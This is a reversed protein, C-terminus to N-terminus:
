GRGSVLEDTSLDAPRSDVHTRALSSMSLAQDLRLDVNFEPTDIRLKKEKACRSLGNRASFINDRYGEM